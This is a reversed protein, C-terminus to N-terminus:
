RAKTLVSRDRKVHGDRFPDFEIGFEDQLAQRDKLMQAHAARVSDPTIQDFQTAAKRKRKALHNSPCNM